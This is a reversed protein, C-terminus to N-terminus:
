TRAWRQPSLARAQRVPVALPEGHLQAALLEGCLVGLTIGRAGLATCAWLGPLAAPDVPGVIPLRDPATCRVAAWARTQGAEFQPRLIVAAAPLLASLKDFNVQTDEPRVIAEACGREFTSGFIWAPQRDLDLGSILSGSGNVPFPPLAAANEPMPAWAIQGRLANIPLPPTGLAELLARTDYGAAVV